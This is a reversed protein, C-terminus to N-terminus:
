PSNVVTWPAVVAAGEVSFVPDVCWLNSSASVVQGASGNNQLDLLQGAPGRNRCLLNRGGSAQLKEDVTVEGGGLDVAANDVLAVGGFAAEASGGGGNDILMSDAILLSSDASARVARLGSGYIISNSMVAEVEGGLRLGRRCNALLLGDLYVSQSDGPGSSFRPGACSWRDSPSGAIVSDSFLFRGGATTRVPQVCNGVVLREFVANYHGPEGVQGIALASDGYLQLCKDCGGNVSVDRFLNGVGSEMTTIADDCNDNFIMEELLNDRGAVHVGDHFGRVSLRRIVNDNGQLDLFLSGSNDASCSNAGGCVPSLQFIVGSDLGDVLLGDCAVTRLPDSASVKIVKGKCDFSIRRADGGCDNLAQRFSSETCAIACSYDGDTNVCDAYAACSHSAAACEDVDVCLGGQLQYGAECLCAGDVRTSGYPCWGCGNGDCQELRCDSSCGDDSDQNADDCEETSQLLGNGCVGGALPLGDAMLLAVGDRAVSSELALCDGRRNARSWNRSLSNDAKDQCALEAGATAGGLSRKICSLNRRLYHGVARVRRTSCSSVVPSGSLVVEGLIQDMGGQAVAGQLLTAACAVGESGNIRLATLVRADRVALARARCLAWEEPRDSRVLKLWCRTLEAAYRREAALRGHACDAVAHVPTASLVLGAVLAAVVGRTTGIAAM